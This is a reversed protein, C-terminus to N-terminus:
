NKKVIYTIRETEAKVPTEEYCDIKNLVTFGLEKLYSELIEETYARETHEEDFREYLEGRRIFFMLYMNVIDDELTNEWVYVVDEDDYDFINNGIVETLKYYSNIDFIFIGDDKLIDRVKSFYNKLNEENTIYNTSDLCCTVLDFQKNINLKSIDQCVFKAKLGKERFKEEAECLMEDSIDVAWTNKFLRCIKETLNGTGCALDIYDNFKVNNRVCSSYIYRGWKEYDIDPRILNDYIHAFERYHEM